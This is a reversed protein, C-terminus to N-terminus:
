HGKPELRYTFSLGVFHHLRDYSQETRRYAEVTTYYPTNQNLIDNASLSLLGRGRLCKWTISADWLLRDDDYGSSAYGRHADDKFETKLEFQGFKYLLRVGAQYDCLHYNDTQTNRLGQYNISGFLTAEFKDREYSFEPRMALVLSRQRNLVHGNGTDTLNAWATGSQLTIGALRLRFHEGFGQEFSLLLSWTTGGRVNSQTSLYAATQPNYSLLTQIPNFTRNFFLKANFVRQRSVHNVTYGLDATLTHTGLLSPNGRRVNLPDYADVYNLTELLDPQLTSYAANLEMRNQKDIKWTAKLSPAILWSTRTATTDLAARQYALRERKRDFSVQPMLQFAKMSFTGYLLFHHTATRENRRYSNAVDALGNTLMDLHTRLNDHQFNYRANLQINPGIWRSYVGGMEVTLQHRPRNYTHLQESHEDTAAYDTTRLTSGDADNSSYRTHAYLALHSKDAFFHYYHAWLSANGESEETRLATTQRTVLVQQEDYREDTAHYASRLRQLGGQWDLIFTNASDPRLRLNGRLNPIFAHSYNHSTTVSRTRDEGPFFTETTSGQRQSNDWHDLDASIDFTSIDEGKARPMMWSKYWGGAGATQKGKGYGTYSTGGFSRGYRNGVNNWDAFVMAQEKTGLRLGDVMVLAHHPTQGMAQLSAYWKDLWGEKIQLDLVLDEGGDDCGAKRAAESQKNYGKIRDVAEAPLQSLLNASLSEQGQVLIRVPKGNWRLEGDQISVGPLKKILEELRAGEELQFAEPNFVVTDGRMTFRKAKAKVVAEGLMVESPRLAIDGLDLTDNGASIAFVRKADYYGPCEVKLTVTPCDSGFSMTGRGLSDTEYGSQRGISNDWRMECGFIAGEIPQRTEADIVRFTIVDAHLTMPLIFLLLTTLKITSPTNRCLTLLPQLLNTRLM